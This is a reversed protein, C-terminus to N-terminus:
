CRCRLGADKPTNGLHVLIVSESNQVNKVTWLSLVWWSFNTWTCAHPRSPSVNEKSLVSWWSWPSWHLDSIDPSILLAILRRWRGGGVWQDRERRRRNLTRSRVLTSIPKTGRESGPRAEWGGVPPHEGGEPWNKRRDVSFLGRAFHRGTGPCDEIIPLSPPCFKGNDDFIAVSSNCSPQLCPPFSIIMQTSFWIVYLKWSCQLMM